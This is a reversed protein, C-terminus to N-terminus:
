SGYACLQKAVILRVEKPMLEDDYLLPRAPMGDERIFKHNYWSYRDSLGWLNLVKINKSVLISELFDNYINAVILDREQPNKPLRQDKVDLETIHVELGFQSLNDIFSMLHNKAIKKKGYLHAQIGFAHIPTGLTILKEVIKLINYRKANQKSTDYEVQHDNFVLLASPDAEHAVSFADHIYDITGKNGWPSKRLLESKSNSAVENVVDWSYIRGKFNGVVQKIHETMIKDANGSSIEKLAWNPIGMHWMLTHGRVMQNNKEAFQILYEAKRYDFRGPGPRLTQWKLEQIPTILKAERAVLASFKTDKSLQQYTVATGFLIGRNKAIVKLPIDELGLCKDNALFAPYGNRAFAVM